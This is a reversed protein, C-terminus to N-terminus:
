VQVEGIIRMCVNLQTKIVSHDGTRRKEGIEHVFSERHFTDRATEVTTARKARGENREKSWRSQMQKKYTEKTEKSTKKGKRPADIASNTTLPDNDRERWNKLVGKELRPRHM